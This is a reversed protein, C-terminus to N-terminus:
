DEREKKLEIELSDLYFALDNHKRFYKMFESPEESKIKTNKFLRKADKISVSDEYNRFLVFLWKRIKKYEETADADREIIEILKQVVSEKSKEDLKSIFNKDSIVDTFNYVNTFNENFSQQDFLKLFKKIESGSFGQILGQLRNEDSIRHNDKQYTKFDDIFGM